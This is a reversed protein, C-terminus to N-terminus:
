YRPQALCVIHRLGGAMVCCPAVAFKMCDSGCVDCLVTRWENGMAVTVVAELHVTGAMGAWGVPM